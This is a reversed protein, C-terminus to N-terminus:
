GELIGSKVMFERAPLLKKYCWAFIKKGLKGLHRCPFGSDPMIGHKKVPFKKVQEGLIVKL